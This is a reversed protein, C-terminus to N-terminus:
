ELAFRLWEFPISATSHLNSDNSLSEFSEFWFEFWEFNIRLMGICIRIILFYLIGARWPTPQSPIKPNQTSVTSSKGIYKMGHCKGAVCSKQCIWVRNSSAIFARCWINLAFRRSTAERPTITLVAKKLKEPSVTVLVTFAVVLITSSLTHVIKM